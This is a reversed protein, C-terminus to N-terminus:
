DGQHTALDTEQIWYHPVVQEGWSPHNIWIVLFETNHNLSLLVYTIHHGSNKRHQTYIVKNIKPMTM